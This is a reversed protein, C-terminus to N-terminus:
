KSKHASALKGPLPGPKTKRKKAARVAEASIMLDRGFKDALLNGELVMQRVRGPSVGLEAAAEATTLTTKAM